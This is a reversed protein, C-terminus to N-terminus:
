ISLPEQLFLVGDVFTKDDSLLRSSFTALEGVGRDLSSITSM